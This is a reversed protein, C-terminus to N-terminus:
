TKITVIQIEKDITLLTYMSIGYAMKGAFKEILMKPLDAVKCTKIHNTYYSYEHCVSKRPNRIHLDNRVNLVVVFSIILFLQIKSLHFGVFFFRKFSFLFLISVILGRICTFERYKFFRVFM